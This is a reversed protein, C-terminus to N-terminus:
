SARRLLAVAREVSRVADRVPASGFDHGRPPLARVVPVHRQLMSVLVDAAEDGAPDDDTCVVAGQRCRAIAAVKAPTLNSAGLVAVANALGMQQLSLADFIGECVLSPGLEPFLSPEGWLALDPQAGDSRAASRHANGTPAWARAVWTRLAGFSRVPFVVSRPADVSQATAVVGHEAACAPSLGRRRTWYRRAQEPWDDWCRLAGDVPWRVGLSPIRPAVEIVPPLEDPDRELERVVRRAEDAEVDLLRVVLGVPGGGVGCGFCRWRGHRSRDAPADAISWSPKSDRHTPLPCAAWWEDGRLRAPVALRALLMPVDVPRWSM